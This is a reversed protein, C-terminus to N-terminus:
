CWEVEENGEWIGGGGSSVYWEEVEGTESGRPRWSIKGVVRWRMCGELRKSFSEVCFVSM